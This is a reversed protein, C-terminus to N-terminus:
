SFGATFMCEVIVTVFFWYYVHMICHLFLTATVFFWCYVHMKYHLTGTIFLWYCVLMTCHLLLTVTISVWYCVCMRCHLLLTVTISLWYCVRMRCHLLLTVTMFFYDLRAELRPESSVLVRTRIRCKEMCFVTDYGNPGLAEKFLTVANDTWSACAVSVSSRALILIWHCASM